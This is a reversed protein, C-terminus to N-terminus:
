GYDHSVREAFSTPPKIDEDGIYKQVEAAVDKENNARANSLTQVRSARLRRVKEFTELRDPIQAPDGVGNLLFGLAGGDEIAQNSGQGGFPLMKGVSDARDNMPSDDMRSQGSSCRRWGALGKWVDM